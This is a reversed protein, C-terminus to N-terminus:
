KINFKLLTKGALTAEVQSDISVSVGESPTGCLILDGDCLKYCNSIAAIIHEANCLMDALCASQVVEGNILLRFTADEGNAVLAETSTFSGVCVSGDFGKATDWPLGASRLQRLLEIDTFTACLTLADYYRYAFREAIHRGLRSIRLAPHLQIRCDRIGDPIFFPKGRLTHTTDPVCVLPCPLTAPTGDGKKEFPFLTPINYSPYNGELIFTKM